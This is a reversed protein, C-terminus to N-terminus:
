FLSILLYTGAGAVYGALALLTFKKLYYVFTIKELGMVSVGTASGIIFISGGTVCCYALFTWFEGNTAYNLAYVSASPDTVIPYMGIAGAVLAVNDLFSSCIGLIFAILTPNHISKDLYASASQLQGATDLAAVSMLVGFFFMITTMDLKPLLHAISLRQNDEITDIRSYMIDTYMWLVALGCMVGMFPPLGTLETFVPVFALSSVGLVLIIIRSRRNVQPLLDNEAHVERHMNWREDKKFFRTAMYLPVVMCVVAPLLLNLIQHMPTLNGNSWLLITTVDGIPSWSGGANASIIVMCAFLWREKQEPIFKRLIALMVIATALNDLIASFLFTICCIIVMLRRKKRTHIRNTIVRFGGHSDILEVIVMSAMVFFLTTSVDGLHDILAFESLFRYYQEHVPLDAFAPIAKFANNFAASQGSGLVSDAGMFLMAWLVIASLIAVAAKNIKIKDEFAIGLIAIIFVVPMLAFVM